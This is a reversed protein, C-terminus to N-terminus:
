IATNGAICLLREPYSTMMTSLPTIHTHNVETPVWSGSSTLEDDNGRYNVSGGKEFIRKRARKVAAAPYKRVNARCKMDDVLGLNGINLKLVLCHPCPYDALFRITAALTRPTIKM